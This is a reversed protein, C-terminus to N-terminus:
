LSAGGSKRLLLIFAPAGVLATLVSIPIEGSVLTRALTDMVLLSVAGLSLATPLVVRNDSGVLMRAMHPALIGLWGVMGCLAVCAATCCTAALIVAIRLAKVPIGMSAAESDELALLNLRWRLVYLLAAGLVMAPIGWALGRYQARSLSGMLWYTIEPLKETPDAVLQIISIMSQFLASVAIGGLVLLITGNAARTKSILFTAGVALLGGAFALGQVGLSPLGLLLGVCAGCGAGASVGLTDPAALPNSFVSQFAVGAGSLAAGAFLALLVRPLRLNMVVSRAVSDVKESHGLLSYFLTRATQAPSLTYKGIGLCLIALLVPFVPLLPRLWRYRNTHPAPHM